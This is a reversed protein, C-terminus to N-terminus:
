AAAVLAAGLLCVVHFSQDVGIVLGVAPRDVHKIERLWIRVLRGDDVLLHPIAILVGVVVAHLATTEEGIWFLAPVCSLTYAAVHLGLARRSARDRFGRAKNVAQWETQLLIDGGLHSVLLALFVAPWTM